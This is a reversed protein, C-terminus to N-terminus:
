GKTLTVQEFAHINILDFPLDNGENVREKVFAKLTSSNITEVVLEGFGNDKLWRQLLMRNEALVSVQMDTSISLRGVGKVTVNQMGDASMKEPLVKKQLIEREQKLLSVESEKNSIQDRLEALRAALEAYSSNVTFM